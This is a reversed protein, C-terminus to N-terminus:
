EKDQGLLRGFTIAGKLLLCTTYTKVSQQELPIRRRQVGHCTLLSFTYEGDERTTQGHALHRGDVCNDVAHSTKDLSTYTDCLEDRRAEDSMNGDKEHLVIVIFEVLHVWDPPIDM